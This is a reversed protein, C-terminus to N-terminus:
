QQEELTAAWRRSPLSATIPPVRAALAASWRRPPLAVTITIDATDDGSSGVVALGVVALGVVATAM